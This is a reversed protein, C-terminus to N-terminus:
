DALSPEAKVGIGPTSRSLDQADLLLPLDSVVIADGVPRQLELNRWARHARMEDLRADLDMDIGVAGVGDEVSGSADAAVVVVSRDPIRFVGSLDARRGFGTSSM